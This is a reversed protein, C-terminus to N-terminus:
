VPVDLKNIIGFGKTKLFKINHDFNAIAGSPTIDIMNLRQMKERSFAVSIIPHTEFQGISYDFSYEIVNILVLSTPIIAFIENAIRLTCSCICNLCLDYFVLRPMTKVSVRGSKLVIKNTDPMYGNRNLHFEIEVLNHNHVFIKTINGVKKLEKFNCWGIIATTYAKIDRNLVKESLMHEEKWHNYDKKFQEVAGSYKEDDKSRAKTLNRELSRRKSDTRRFLKDWFNPIYSELELKAQLENNSLRIPKTPKNQSHIAIWDVKETRKKHFSILSEIYANYKEVEGSAIQLARLRAQEKLQRKRMLEKEREYRRAASVTARALSSALSM